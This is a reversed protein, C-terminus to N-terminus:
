WQILYFLIDGACSLLFLLILYIPKILFTTSANFTVLLESVNPVGFMYYGSVMSIVFSLILFSLSFFFTALIKGTLVTGRRFPRVLLLKITGSDTESTILNAIMMVTFIIILLTAIKLAYYTFDYMNKESTMTHNLSLVSGINNYVNNELQYTLATIQQKNNYENYDSLNANKSAKMKELPVTKYIQANIKFEVIDRYANGLMMYNTINEIIPATEINQKTEEITNIIASKNLTVQTSTSQLSEIFGKDIQIFSLSKIYYLLDSLYSSKQLEKTADEKSTIETKDQSIKSQIIKFEEVANILRDYNAQTHLAIITDNNVLLECLSQFGTVRFQNATTVLAEKNEDNLDGKVLLIFKQQTNYIETIYDNLINYILNLGYNCMNEMIEIYQNINIYTIFQSVNSISNLNTNFDNKLTEYSYSTGGKIVDFNRVQYFPKQQLNKATVLKYLNSDADGFSSLDAYANLFDNFSDKVDQLLTPLAQTDNTASANRLNVFNTNIRDFNHSLMYNYDYIEKYINIKADTPDFLTTDFRAKTDSTQSSGMFTSYIISANDGDISVTNSTRTVPKYSFLSIVLAFALIFAMIFVTPKKFVKSFEARTIRFINM